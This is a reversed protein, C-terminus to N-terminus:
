LLTHQMTVASTRVAFQTLQFTITRDPLYV